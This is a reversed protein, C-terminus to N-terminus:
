TPLVILPLRGDHVLDDILFKRFLKDNLTRSGKQVVFYSNPKESVYSKIETFADTGKYIKVECSLDKPLKEKVMDLYDRSLTEDEESSTFTLLELHKVQNGLMSLLRNLAPVNIPYKRHLGVILQEPYTSNIEPPFAVTMNHLGNIIETATSGMLIKKFWGTGKLGLVVVDDAELYNSLFHSLQNEIPKFSAEEANHGLHHVMENFQTTAQKKEFELIQKRSKSDATTPVMGAIQHVFVLELGFKKKWSFAMEALIKSYKSFDVLVVLKNM